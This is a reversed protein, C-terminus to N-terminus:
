NYLPWENKGDLISQGVKKLNHMNIKLGDGFMKDFAPHSSLKYVRVNSPYVSRWGRDNVDTWVEGTNLDMMISRNVIGDKAAWAWENYTHMAKKVGSIKM